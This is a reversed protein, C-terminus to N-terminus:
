FTHLQISSSNDNLSPSLSKIYLSELIRGDTETSFTKLIKFDQNHILHNNIEMHSRIASTEPHSVPRGTRFSLGKHKQIRTKLQLITQGVYCANCSACQYKYVVCSKLLVPIKDKVSFFKGLNQSNIALFRFDCQPYIPNLLSKLSHILDNTQSGIYPLKIFIKEKPVDYSPLKPRFIELLYNNLIRDFIEDPFLNVKYFNKLYVMEKHFLNWNSCIKFARDIRCSISSFKFKPMLSSFFNTGLLTFTPKRYVSTHFKGNILEINIDLFSLKNNIENEKTFKISVHKSNLYQLFLSAHEPKKFVVFCDDVYRRYLLPKFECPCDSLWSEEHYSLFSNAFSPGLPSGMAMGEIQQYLANNFLFVTDQTSLNLMKKFQTSSFGDLRDGSQFLSNVIIDITEKVPVNTFLSEIDFSTM